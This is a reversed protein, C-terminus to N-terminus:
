TIGRPLILTTRLLKTIPKRLLGFNEQDTFKFHFPTRIKKTKNKGFMNTDSLNNNSDVNMTRTDEVFNRSSRSCVSVSRWYSLVTSLRTRHYMLLQPQLPQLFPSWQNSGSRLDHDWLFCIDRKCPYIYDRVLKVEPPLCMIHYKWIPRSSMM